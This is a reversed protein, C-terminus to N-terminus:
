VSQCLNRKRMTLGQFTLHSLKKLVGFTRLLPASRIALISGIEEKPMIPM